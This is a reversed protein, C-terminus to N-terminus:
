VNNLDGKYRFNNLEEMHDENNPDFLTASYEAYNEREQNYQDEADEDSLDPNEEMIDSLSILGHLGAWSDYTELSLQYAEDIADEENDARILQKDMGAVYNGWTIYYVNNMFEM